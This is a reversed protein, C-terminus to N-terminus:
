TTAHHLRRAVLTDAGACRILAAAIGVLALGTLVPIAVKAARRPLVLEFLPVPDGLRGQFPGFPCDGRGVVLAIGGFSLFAVSGGL